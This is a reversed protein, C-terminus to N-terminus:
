GEARGDDAAGAAAQGRRRRLRDRGTRRRSARTDDDADIREAYRDRTTLVGSRHPTMPYPADTTFTARVREAVQMRTDIANDWQQKNGNFPANRYAPTDPKGQYTGQKYNIVQPREGCGALALTAAAVIALADANRDHNPRRGAAGCARSCCRTRRCRARGAACRGAAAQVGDGLGVSRRGQRSAIVRDRYINAIVDGDGGLLAKTSCMEACAPLKGEALRNRGYKQFEAESRDPEPGGACFTCKDMKGRVGFAGTQPFQPAGFPCAYFCYGCGICLDKDHLVVGEETKYFCDVPCVAMCPADSCHMCAVSISREGPVGDNITVVRRRNVGWPIEHEQKCATVCGNCEICREADCLFKMRAM